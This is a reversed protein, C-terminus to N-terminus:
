LGACGIPKPIVEVITKREADTMLNVRQVCTYPLLSMRDRTCTVAPASGRDECSFGAKVLHEIATLFSMGVSVNKAVVAQFRANDAPSMGACGGVGTLLSVAFLTLAFVRLECDGDRAKEISQSQWLTPM